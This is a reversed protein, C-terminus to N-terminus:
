KGEIADKLRQDLGRLDPAADNALEPHLEDRFARSFQTYRDVAPRRGPGQGTLADYLEDAEVRPGAAAECADGSPPAANTHQAIADFYPEHRTAAFGGREFLLQESTPGTLFEILARAANKRTSHASVALSGGGLVGGPMPVVGVEFDLECEQLTRIVQPWHRLFPVRGTRFAELADTEDHQLAEQLIVQAGERVEEHLDRSLEELVGAADSREGFEIMGDAERVAVGSALLYEWVNVTFGEYPALQMAIGGDFDANAELMWGITERLGNWDSISAAETASLTGTAYVSDPGERYYLMGVNTHFPLAHLEGDVRGTALPHPLFGETDADKLAELHGAKAFEAIWPVDLEVADVDASESQLAAHIASFQLDAIGPLEVMEAPHDPHGTNWQEVLLRRQGNATDDRGALLRLPRGGLDELPRARERSGYLHGGSFCGFGAITGATGIMLARKIM